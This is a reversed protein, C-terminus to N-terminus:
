LSIVHCNYGWKKQWEGILAVTSKNQGMQVAAYDQIASHKAKNSMRLMGTEYQKMAYSYAVMKRDFDEGQAKQLNEYMDVLTLSSGDYPNKPAGASATKAQQRLKASWDKTVKNEAAKYGALGAGGAVLVTLLTIGIIVGQKRLKM